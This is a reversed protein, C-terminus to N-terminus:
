FQSFAMKLKQSQLYFHTGMVAFVLKWDTTLIPVFSLLFLILSQSLFATRKNKINHLSVQLTMSVAYQNEALYFFSFVLFFNILVSLLITLLLAMLFLTIQHEKLYILTFSHAGGWILLSPISVLFLKLAAWQSRRSFEIGWLLVCVQLGAALGLLAGGSLGSIILLICATLYLALHRIKLQM